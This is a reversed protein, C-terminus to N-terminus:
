YKKGYAFCQPNILNNKGYSLRQRTDSVVFNGGANEIIAQAACTDWERTSGFYHSVDIKGEALLVFRLSSNIQMVSLNQFKQSYNEIFNISINKHGIAVKMKRKNTFDNCSIFFKNKKNQILYAKQDYGYYLLDFKPAYVMGFVPYNNKVLGINITFEPSGNIYGSTGDIPDILWFSNKDNFEVFSEEAFIDADSVSSIYKIIHNEIEIDAETCFSGDKKKMVKINSNQYRCALGGLDFILDKFNNIKDSIKM